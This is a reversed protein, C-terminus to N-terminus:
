ISLKLPRGSSNTKNIDVEILMREMGLELVM